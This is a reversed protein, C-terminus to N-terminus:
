IVSLVNKGAEVNIEAMTNKPITFDFLHLEGSMVQKLTFKIKGPDALYPYYDQTYLLTVPEKNAYIKHAVGSGFYNYKRYLYVLAKDPPVDTVPKFNLTVCGGLALVAILLLLKCIARQM